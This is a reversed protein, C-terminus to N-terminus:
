FAERLSLGIMTITVLAVLAGVFLLGYKLRYHWRCASCYLAKDFFFDHMLLVAAVSLVVQIVFSPRRLTSSDCRRDCRSCYSSLMSHPQDPGTARQM